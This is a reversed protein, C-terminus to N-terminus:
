RRDSLASFHMERRPPDLGDVARKAAHVNKFSKGDLQVYTPTAAFFRVGGREVVVIGATQDAGQIVFADAM